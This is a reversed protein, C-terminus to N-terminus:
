IGLVYEIDDQSFVEASSRHHARDIVNQFYFLLSQEHMACDACDMTGGRVDLM